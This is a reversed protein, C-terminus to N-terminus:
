NHFSNSLIISPGQYLKTIRSLRLIKNFYKVRVRIKKAIQTTILKNKIATFLVEFKGSTKLKAGLSSEAREM